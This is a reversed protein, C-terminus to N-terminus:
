RLLDKFLVMYENAMRQASFHEEVYAKTDDFMQRFSMKRPEEPEM